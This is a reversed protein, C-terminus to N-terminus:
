AKDLPVYAGYERGAYLAGEFETPASDWVLEFGSDFLGAITEFDCEEDSLLLHYQESVFVNWM